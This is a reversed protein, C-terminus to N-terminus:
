DRTAAIRADDFVVRIPRGEDLGFAMLDIFDVLNALQQQDKESTLGLLYGLDEKLRGIGKHGVSIQPHHPQQGYLVLPDTLCFLAAAILAAFKKTM